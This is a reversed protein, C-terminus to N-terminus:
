AQTFPSSGSSRCAYCGLGSTLRYQDTDVPPLYHRRPLFSINDFKITQERNNYPRRALRINWFIMNRQPKAIRM